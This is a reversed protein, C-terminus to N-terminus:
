RWLFGPKRSPSSLRFSILLPEGAPFSRTQRLCGWRIVSFLILSGAFAPCLVNHFGCPNLQGHRPKDPGSLASFLDKHGSAAAARPYPAAKVIRRIRNSSNVAALKRAWKEMQVLKDFIRGISKVGFAIVIAFALVPLATSLGYVLPM